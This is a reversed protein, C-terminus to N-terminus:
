REPSAARSRRLSELMERVATDDEDLEEAPLRGLRQDERRWQLLVVVQATLLVLEGVLLSVVGALRQDALLDPSWPLDLTRYYNEAIVGSASLLIVAFVAHFPMVAFALGLRGLPPLPRPRPDAGVLVWFFQYGTVLIVVNLVSRSWHESTAAEFLDTLYLLYYSGAFLVAAPIPAALLRAAASRALGDLWERPGLEGTRAPHLARMALAVPGGLVLLLPAVMNLAMHSAMHMSLSAPAYVAIGSSTGVMGVACGALWTVTRHVPWAEGRRRLRWVGAAYLAGAGLFATGLLLDPRWSTVLAAPTLPGPLAYGAAIEFASLEAVFWGPPPQQALGMTLGVTVLLVTLEAVALAAVRRGPVAPGPHLVRRRVVVGVAGVAVVAFAKVLVLRGYSTAVMQPPPVLLAAAALGSVTLVAWCATALAPYRRVAVDVRGTGRIGAALLAALAGLWVGGAVVHLVVANMAYDHAPGSAAHGAFVPPLLGAVALGALAVTSAWRLVVQCAVAVVAAAAVSASWFPPAYLSGFMAVLGQPTLVRSVPEGVSNAADFPLLLLGALAWVWAARGALRVAVWGEAALAGATGAPTLFVAFVLAGTSVGAAVDFVLRLVFAGAATVFGPDPYGLM